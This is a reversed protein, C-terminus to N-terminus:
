KMKHITSKSKRTNLKRKHITSKSKRTNLKRKHITSKSKRTNLRRKNTISKRIHTNLKRKLTTSKKKTLGGGRFTIAKGKKIKGLLGKKPKSSNIVERIYSRNNPTLTKHGSELKGLLSLLQDKVILQNFENNTPLTLTRFAEELKNIDTNRQKKQPKEIEQRRREMERRQREMERRQREMERRQREMGEREAEINRMIHLNVRPYTTTSPSNGISAIEATPVPSTNMVSKKFKKLNTPTAYGSLVLEKCCDGWLRKSKYPNGKTDVDKLQSICEKRLNPINRNKRLQVCYRNDAKTNALLNPLRSQREIEARSLM